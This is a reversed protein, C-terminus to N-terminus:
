SKSMGLMVRQLVVPKLECSNRRCNQLSLHSDMVICILLMKIEKLVHYIKLTDAPFSPIVLSIDLEGESTFYQKRIQICRVTIGM